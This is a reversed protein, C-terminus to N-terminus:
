SGHIWEEKTLYSRLQGRIRSLRASVANESLGVQRAIDKVSDGFWHRRLFIVRNERSLTGLFRDIAKGLEKAELGAELATNGICEALEDLSLAYHSSRKYASNARLRKCCINKGVRCVYAWLPDPKQPPITNWLALYTDNVCEQADQEDGLINRSMALLRMGFTQALAELATEARQFLLNIIQKDDM